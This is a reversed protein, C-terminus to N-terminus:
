RSEKLYRTNGVRRTFGIKDMYDLLPIAFKRTTDILYKFDVSELRGSGKGKVHEAIRTKAQEIADRHFYMGQEVRFLTQHEVLLKLNKELAGSDLKLALSLEDLSPPSFLNKLFLSEVQKLSQQQQLDLQERHAPLALRNKVVKLKNEQVMREIIGKLVSRNESFQALLSEEEIGPSQPSRSHFEAVKVLLKSEYQALTTKHIFYEGNLAVASGSVVLADLVAEVKRPSQKSDAAIDLPRAAAQSTHRLCYEVFTEPRCVAKERLRLDDLVDPKPKIRHDSADIIFGGAITRMPSLDRLIFRDNPGAVLPQETRFQVLMSNERSAEELPYAAATVESTGTHFKYLRGNKLPKVSSDLLRVSCLFWHQPKFFGGNTLVDGRSVSQADIQPLNIAACQGSRVLNSDKGYVQIARIRSQVGAPLLTLEDGVSASGSAPIGSVITGFGKLSFAREIPMRFIGEVDRPRVRGILDKLSKYFNDFGEGTINSLPCISANELFTGRLFLRLEDQVQKLRDPTVIDIKTMAVLGHQVGLLTLIDFHERTQPMIGDDAAVVFIVGDIGTAGAVMTKIFNEHGPVDVIGVELDGLRCPAFGLEISMGREKEEKLRDTECGTLLRVLATKGHDIHGATGLTVNIQAIATTM